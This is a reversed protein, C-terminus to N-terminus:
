KKNLGARKQELLKKITDISEENSSLSSENKLSKICEVLVEEGNDELMRRKVEMSKIRSLEDNNFSECLLSFSFGEGNELEMIKSFVRKNFQTVFDNESLEYKGSIIGSRYEDYIMILGLIIEETASARINKASDPNVRDGIGMSELKVERSVDNKYQHIKKNRIRKVDNKLGDEGIGLKKSLVSIYVDREVDSWINSIYECMESAAKVKDDPRSIDYKMFVSDCKFEFGTRGEDLLAAFKERGFKKIYEDPDKAGNMKLIRVDLGVDSLMGVARTAAKQGAEDSDYAILVQKTYKAMIRAQESTLATGLTAVANEFGASHLAIVDMYGECLIMRDACHTRAYNLAFLNRSKKFAPTDSSNLYKPKSDDMVRGGFAIVNGSTDIIPFIVRNRFYDYTRGNKKSKGCLFGNVLEDESFGKKRLHDTLGGFSDPAYGLGFHKIVSMPLKRSEAFYKMGVHGINEDFLCARFYKAAELNMMLTRKRADSASKDREDYSINIGARRALQEVAPVYELNEIRMTFSIVDGGAGCGFCYFSQTAPFVTFSPTKENHFPCLGSYNSGARKLNVYTSIVDVVDNRNRVDDIVEKPIMMDKYIRWTGSIHVYTFIQM